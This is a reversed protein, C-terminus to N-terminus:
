LKYYQHITLPIQFLTCDLHFEQIIKLKKIVKELPFNSIPKQDWLFFRLLKHPFPLSLISHYENILFYLFLSILLYKQWM